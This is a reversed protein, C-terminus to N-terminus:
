NSDNTRNSKVELVRNAVAVNGKGDKVAVYVRYTGVEKPAELRTRGPGLAEVEVPFYKPPEVILPDSAISTIFYSYDLEDDEPDKASASVTFKEGAGIGGGVDMRFEFIKPPRNDPKLGTYLTYLRWYAERRDEGLNVNFWTLSDQNRPEGLVFAIGGLSQESAAEIQRWLSEYNAAKLQDFPDYAMGNTDKSQDWSGLPGFETVLLPKEYQHSRMWGLVPSFSGYINAGVIDLAPVYKQLYPLDKTSSAAYVVPHEPDEDHVAKILDNLFQGFAIREDEQETYAFVENGINWALLAPHDKMGEVYNLITAKLGALYGGDKFSEPSGSRIPNIWIGVDVKLKAKQARDLYARPTDGWTRLTNAGMEQAMQIYDEGKEGQAQNCGIGKVEFPEGNVMLDWSGADNKVVKVKSGKAFSLTSLATLLLLAILPVSFRKM